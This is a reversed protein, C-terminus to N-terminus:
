AMSESFLMNCGIDGVSSVSCGTCDYVFLVANLFQLVMMGVM